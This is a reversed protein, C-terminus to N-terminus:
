NEEQIVEYSSLLIQMDFLEPGKLVPNSGVKM